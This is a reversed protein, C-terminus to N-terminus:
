AAPETQRRVHVPMLREFQHGAVPRHEKIALEVATRVVHIANAAATTSPYIKGTRICRVPVAGPPYPYTTAIQEALDEDELLCFINSQSIGSLLWPHDKLWRVLDARYVYSGGGIRRRPFDPYNQVWGEVRRRSIDLTRAIEVDTLWTGTPRFSLGLRIAQFRIAHFTRHPRNHQTAWRNYANVIMPRPVDGVLSMLADLEDPRWPYGM